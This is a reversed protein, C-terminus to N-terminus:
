RRRAAGSPNWTCPEPLLAVHYPSRQPTCASSRHKRASPTAHPCAHWQTSGAPAGREAAQSGRQASGASADGAWTGAAAAASDAPRSACLSFVQVLMNATQRQNQMRTGSVTLNATCSQARVGKDVVGCRM